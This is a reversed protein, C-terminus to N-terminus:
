RYGGVRGTRVDYAHRAVEVARHPELGHRLAKRRDKPTLGGWIGHEIEEAFAEAVCATAVPCVRCVAKARMRDKRDEAFFLEPEHEVCRAKARWAGTLLVPGATM